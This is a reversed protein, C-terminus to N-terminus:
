LGFSRCLEREYQLRKVLERSLSDYAPGFPNDDSFVVFKNEPDVGDHKCADVWAARTREMLNFATDSM